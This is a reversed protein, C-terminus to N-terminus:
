ETNHSNDRCQLEKNDSCIAIGGANSGIGLCIGMGHAGSPPMWMACNFCTAPYYEKLVPAKKELDVIVICMESIEKIGVLLYQECPSIDMFAIKPRVAQKFDLVTHYMHLEFESTSCISVGNKDCFVTNRATTVVCQPSTIACHASGRDTHPYIM